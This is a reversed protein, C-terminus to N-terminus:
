LIIKDIYTTKGQRTVLIYVNGPLAQSTVNTADGIGTAVTRGTSVEILTLYRPADADADDPSITNISSLGYSAYRTAVKSASMAGRYISFDDLLGKYGNDFNVSVNGVIMQEDKDMNIAGTNDSSEAKLAGDIYIKLTKTAGERVLVVHHWGGDFCVTGDTSAESKTVDDDVAFKIQNGKYELGIWNGTRNFRADKAITGIHFVYAGNDTSKMLFEVTFDDSGFNLGEYRNQILRDSTGNFYIANGVLGPQAEPNGNTTADEGKANAVSGSNVADMTYYLVQELAVPATVTVSINIAAPTGEGGVTNLTFEHVGEAEPTGSLTFTSTADDTTLTIGAPLAEATVGDCNGWKGTLPQIPDGLEVAQRLISTADMMIRPATDFRDPLYYGLHPPQNYATNQWAVAMRYNHDTLLCPVRYNTPITTTFVLLDTSNDGDWLIIEERWDGLLDAQLCPTAKTTNCSQANWKNFNVLNSSSNLNASRKEIIPSSIGTNSDFKGDFLEEQLDGDWYVRFCTSGRKNVLLNGRCDFTANTKVGNDFYNGPWVEYGRWTDSLDAVLGRGIDNGSQKTSWIVNGTKADRFESDYPYASGKEEHVMFIELGERDPDFDGLHLADGHGAGTRYLLSGDHDISAAGYVIEDKGDGDVDGITLSHAGEGYAGKGKETSAHLWRETLKSGDFDVAWLYSHTYYGRCMVASPHEGDLYAVGALYRESRNAYEDGWGPYSKSQAHTARPPNY